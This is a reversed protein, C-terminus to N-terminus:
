PSSPACLDFFVNLLRQCRPVPHGLEQCTSVEWAASKMIESRAPVGDCFGASPTAVRAAAGFFVNVGVECVLTDCADLRNLAELLCERQTHAQGFAQGDNIANKGMAQFREKNGTFYHAAGLGAGVVLLVVVLLFAVLFRTPNTKPSRLVVSGAVHDHLGQKRPDIAVWFFGAGLLLFAPYEAWYRLSARWWSLRQHDDARVVSLGLLMKGPTAAKWCWFGVSIFYPLLLLLFSRAPAWATQESLWWAPMAFIPFDILVAVLRLWFGAYSPPASDPTM